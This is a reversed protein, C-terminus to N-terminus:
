KGILPFFLDVLDNILIGFLVLYFSDVLFRYRSYDTWAFVTIVTLYIISILIFAFVSRMWFDKSKSCFSRLFKYFAYVFLVPLGLILLLFKNKGISWLIFKKYFRDVQKSEGGAYFYECQDSPLFYNNLFVEKRNKFIYGMYNRFVYVADRINVRSADLYILNHTNGYQGDRSSDDLVPIGTKVQRIGYHTYLSLDTSFPEIKVL